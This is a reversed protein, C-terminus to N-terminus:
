PAAIVVIRFGCITDIPTVRGVGAPSAGGGSRRRWM